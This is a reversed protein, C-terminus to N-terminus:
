FCIVGSKVIAIAVRGLRGIWSGYDDKVRERVRTKGRKVGLELLCVRAVGLGSMGSLDGGRRVACM